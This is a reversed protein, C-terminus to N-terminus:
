VLSLLFGVGALAGMLISAPDRIAFSVPDADLVGRHSLLWIRSAWAFVVMVVGWLWEPTEYQEPSIDNAVYLSLILVAAIVTGVGLSLTLPADDTTYGRGPIREGRTAPRPADSAAPERERIGDRANVIEVHRKAMSLSFFFFFSFMLLWPTALAGLLLAGFVVRLTYLAGLAFIDLLPVRKLGFSYSLTTAVYAALCVTAPLSVLATLALGSAVLAIGVLFAAGADVAGRAIPRASKTPHRRDSNMDAIDNFIYTGSATIGMTLFGAVAAMVADAETFLQSLLLPVFVLVNKSWQHLRLLKLWDRAPTREMPLDLEVPRGLREFGRRTSPSVGVLVASSADRWVSLDAASDGAYAFGDPFTEALFARKREGKLNRRDRTGHASDFLGTQAAIADAVRQDAATVLHLARGRAKEAQLYDLLRENYLLGDDRLEVDVLAAKFAGRGHRLEFLVRLARLPRAFFLLLFAEVLTDTLLLTRDLDVALPLADRGAEAFAPAGRRAPARPVDSRGSDSRRAAPRATPGTTSTADASSVIQM